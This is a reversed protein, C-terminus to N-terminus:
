SAGGARPLALGRKRMEDSLAQQATETLNGSDEALELLEADYMKGYTETLRQREMLPDTQM